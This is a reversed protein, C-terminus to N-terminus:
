EHFISYLDLRAAAEADDNRYEVLRGHELLELVAEPAHQLPEIEGRVDQVYVIAAGVVRQTHQQSQVVCVLADADGIEAAVEALFHRHGGAEVMGCAIGHDDDICVQLIRRFQNRAQHGFPLGPVVHNVPLAGLAIALRPEFLRRCEQEIPEDLARTAHLNRGVRAVESKQTPTGDIGQTAQRLLM